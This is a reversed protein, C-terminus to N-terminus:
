TSAGVTVVSSPAGFDDGPASPATPDPMWTEGDVVFAYAHRGPSLELTVSWVGPQEARVLPTASADWLNFDGVLAVQRASPAAVVFRVLKVEAAEQSQAVPAPTPGGSGRALTLTAFSVIAAFGAAAALGVLPSLRFTRRRTAWGRASRAAVLDISAPREPRPARLVAAMVRDDFSAGFAMPERLVEVIRATLEDHLRDSM